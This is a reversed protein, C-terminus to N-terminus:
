GIATINLVLIFSHYHGQLVENRFIPTMIRFSHIKAKDIFVVRDLFALHNRILSSNFHLSHFITSGVWLVNPSLWGKMNLNEFTFPVSSAESLYLSNRTRVEFRYVSNFPLHNNKSPFFFPTLDVTPIVSGMPYDRAREGRTVTDYSVFEGNFRSPPLWFAHM